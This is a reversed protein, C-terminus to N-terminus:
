VDKDCVVKDCVMKCKCVDIKRKRPLRTAQHCGGENKTAPTASIADQPVPRARIACKPATLRDHRRPVKGPLRPVQRCVGANPTAPTASIASCQSQNREFRRWTAAVKRPLRPLMWSQKAHCRHGKHCQAPEPPTSRAKLRRHQRPVKRPLRPVQHCGGPPTALAASPSRWRRKAHCAHRKKCQAQAGHRQPVKRPLRPAIWRPM